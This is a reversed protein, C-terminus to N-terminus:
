SDSDLSLGTDPVLQVKRPPMQETIYTAGVRKYFIVWLHADKSGDEPPDVVQFVVFAM